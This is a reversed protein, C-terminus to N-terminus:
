LRDDAAFLVVFALSSAWQAFLHSFPSVPLSSCLSAGFIEFCLSLTCLPKGFAKEAVRV